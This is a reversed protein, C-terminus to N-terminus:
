LPFAEERDSLDSNVDCFPIVLFGFHVIDFWSDFLASNWNRRYIFSPVASIAHCQGPARASVCALGTIVELVALDGSSATM